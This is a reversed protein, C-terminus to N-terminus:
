FVSPYVRGQQQPYIFSSILFIVFLFYDAKTIELVQAKFFHCNAELMLLKLQSDNASCGGYNATRTYHM